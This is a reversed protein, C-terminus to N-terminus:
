TDGKKDVESGVPVSEVRLRLGGEVGVVRILRGKPLRSDAVASWTESAVQVVGEPDVVRLVKGEQGVMQEARSPTAETKRMRMAARVVISFFAVALGAVLIIVWPSVRSNPVSSDFLLFGGAVLCVAGGITPIGIGPHKLELLFFVVSAILLAVGLLQVPLMGLAVVSLILMIAGIVGMVGGPVFLELVILALGLWFFLFAITPNLLGHLFGIAPNMEVQEVAAGTLNLTVDGAATSVSTGDLEALLADVNLAILDIVGLDLAEEATASVSERVAEEAWEANRGTTEALSVMYAAADNEAKESSIAGSFGVPHAAGVNTGPAMAAVPCSMLVFTGASAARAGSPAVYCLVPVDSNLVAETIQRMSSDLGGPTDITLLVAEDGAKNAQDIGSEVYDASFPDVVGELQLQRVQPPPELAVPSFPEQALALSAAAYLIFATAVALRVARMGGIMAGITEAPFAGKAAAPHAGGRAQM